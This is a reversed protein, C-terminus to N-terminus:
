YCVNDFYLHRPVSPLTINGVRTIHYLAVSDGAGAWSERPAPREHMTMGTDAFYVCRRIVPTVDVGACNMTELFDQSIAHLADCAGGGLLQLRGRPTLLYEIHEETFTYEAGDNIWQGRAAAIAEQLSNQVWPDDIAWTMRRVSTQLYLGYPTRGYMANATDAHPDNITTRGLAAHAAVVTQLYSKMDAVAVDMQAMAVADHWICQERSFPTKTTTMMVPNIERM